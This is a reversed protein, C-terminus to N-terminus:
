DSIKNYWEITRKLGSDLNFFPEYYLIKKAKDISALSQRIDGERENKYIPKIHIKLLNSIKSFLDNLNISHGYAINFVKGYANEGALCARINANVVDEVYTFDRSQMGDGYIIPSEKRMLRSIFIPIVAAYQSDPDQNKGYVNFYRLGITPLKYQNYFIDGYMENTIKTISYPSLPKGVNDEVKPLCYNDGYVSSSSAFVFRKVKSEKAALLMNLTGTINVENTTKPDVISRPVSGLAANHLIYDIGECAKYCDSINRIDGEILEFKENQMSEELNKKYGTSFNDLIRVKYGLKLIKEVINSGIFGGGGTILFKSDEDFKLSSNYM